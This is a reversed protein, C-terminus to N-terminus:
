ADESLSLRKRRQAEPSDDSEAYVGLAEGRFGAPEPAGEDRHSEDEDWAEKGEYAPMRGGEETGAPAPPADNKNRPTRRDAM